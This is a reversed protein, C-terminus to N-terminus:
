RTNHIVEDVAEWLQLAVVECPDTSFFSPLSLPRTVVLFVAIPLM